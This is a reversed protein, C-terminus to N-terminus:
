PNRALGRPAVDASASQVIITDKCEACAARGVIDGYIGEASAERVTNPGDPSMLLEAASALPLALDAVGAATMLEGNLCALPRRGAHVTVLHAIISTL